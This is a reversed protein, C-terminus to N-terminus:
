LLRQKEPRCRCSAAPTPRRAAERGGRRAQGGRRLGAGRGGPRRHPVQRAQGAQRGGGGEGARRGAGGGPHVRRGGRRVEGARLAARRPLLAARLGPARGAFVSLHLRYLEAALAATADDRTKKFEAHYQVALTRLTNEADRRADALARQAAEDGGRRESAQLMEVFRAAQKVALEKRGMRGAGTVIRQQFLAAEPAEPAAVILGHYVLIADVDKGEDFYLQALGRLMDRAEKGGVRAFDEPAARPSGVHSYTRVYDKRAERALALKKDPAVTSTPLDGFFLVARFLDLAENWAGLNYHVWAQKYLAYGYISSETYAAARRYSELAKALAVKRDGKEASEFYYEGYAM